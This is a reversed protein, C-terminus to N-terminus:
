DKLKVSKGTFQSKWRGSGTDKGVVFVEYSGPRFKNTFASFQYTEGYYTRKQLFNKGSNAVPLAPLIFLHSPSKLQFYYPTLRSEKTRRYSVTLYDTIKDLWYNYKLTTYSAFKGSFVASDALVGQFKSSVVPYSTKPLSYIGSSDLNAILKTMRIPDNWFLKEGFRDGYSMMMGYNKWYFSDLSLAEYQRRLQSVSMFYSVFHIVLAVLMASIGTAITIKKYKKSILVLAMYAAILIVVGFIMYRRSILGDATTAYLNIPRSLVLMAANGMVFLFAGIIFCATRTIGTIFWTRFVWGCFVMMIGAGLIVCAVLDPYHQFIMPHPKDLYLVNGIFLLFFSLNYIPHVFVSDGTRQIFHYDYLFYFLIVLVAAASWITVDRYRKQLLLILGGIVWVLLGSGSVFTVLLASGLSLWFSNKKESGILYFSLLVFFILSSNQISAIGWNANEYYVLSFFVFCVPIMYFWSIGERKFVRYFLFMTGLLFTNGILIQQRISEAGNVKLILWMVIREYAFRHQNIQSFLVKIKDALSLDLTLAYINELLDYDDIYPIDVIHVNIIWYFYAVPLLALIAGIYKQAPQLTRVFFTAGFLLATLLVLSYYQFLYPDPLMEIEV